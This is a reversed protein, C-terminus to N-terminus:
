TTATSCFSPSHTTLRARSGVTPASFAPSPPLRALSPCLRTSPIPGQSRTLSYGERVWLAAASRFHAFAGLGFMMGQGPVYKRSTWGDIWGANPFDFHIEADLVEGLAKHNMLHQLTRFDGDYRRNHFVTLVVGKKQALEICRDAETSSNVFPKEVVVPDKTDAGNEAVAKAAYEISPEEKEGHKGANLAAEVFEGHTDGGTLVIVLEIEEDRLFDQATQYHKSKPFDITCHGWKLKKAEEPTTPPAHRQLFAYVELDPNPLIFPLHFCKTSFGYGIIGAKIPAM